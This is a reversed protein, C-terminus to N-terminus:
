SFLIQLREKALAYDGCKEYYEKAKATQGSCECIVGMNYYALFSNVGETSFQEMTTCKAFEEIANTFMTNNMYILGILFVFDARVAFDDYIALLQLAEKYRKMDLLCYGYSEIMKQVYDQNPDIDMALVKQFWDYASKYDKLQLYSQALQYLLYADAGTKALEKELLAINRRSKAQMEEESGDYGVHLVTIPADYVSKASTDEAINEIPQRSTIREAKATSKLQEIKATSEIKAISEIQAIPEIQEHISGQFQFFQKPFFRTLRVQEYSTQGTTSIRNKLLIRGASKPFRQMQQALAAEDITEVYEDCDLSLIWDGSAKSVAFNKAASFDDCWDFHYIHKTYHSAIEITNDTSGTDVLVIEYPYLKLRKLCEEIHKEENKAIICVSISLM